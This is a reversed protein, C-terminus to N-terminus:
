EQFIYRCTRSRSTALSDFTSQIGSFLSSFAAKAKGRMIAPCPKAALLNERVFACM